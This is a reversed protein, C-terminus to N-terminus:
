IEIGAPPMIAYQVVAPVRSWREGDDSIATVVIKVLQVPQGDVQDGDLQEVIWFAVLAPGCAIPNKAESNVRDLARSLEAGQKQLSVLRLAQEHTNCIVGNGVATAQQGSGDQEHGRQDHQIQPKTNQDSAGASLPGALVAAMAAMALLPRM